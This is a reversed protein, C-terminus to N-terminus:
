AIEIKLWLPVFYFVNQMIYYVKTNVM